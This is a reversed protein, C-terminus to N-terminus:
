RTPSPPEVLREDKHELGSVADLLVARIVLTGPEPADAASVPLHVTYHTGLPSSRYAERLDAASLTAVGLTRPPEGSGAAGLAAAEVTLTGAVQVFRRRGDYPRVYIDISDLVGDGDADVWGSFRDITLGACRPLADIVQQGTVDATARKMEEYKALMETSRANAAALETELEVVRRRLADNENEFDKGKARCGALAISFVVAPGALRAALRAGASARARNM